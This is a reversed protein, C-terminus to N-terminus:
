TWVVHPNPFVRPWNDLTSDLQLEMRRVTRAPVDHVNRAVAQRISTRFVRCEVEDAYLKAVAVYPAISVPHVNTNDVIIHAETGETEQCLDLFNEFCWRHAKDLDAPNFRYQGHADVFWEDASCVYTFEAPQDLAWTSKGSGPIGSLITVRM